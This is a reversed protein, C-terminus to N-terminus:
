PLVKQKLFGEPAVTAKDRWYLFSEKLAAEFQEPNMGTATGGSIQFHNAMLTGPSMPAEEETPLGNVSIIEWDADSSQEDNEALVDHRYLVVDVRKAPSKGGERVVFTEKRPEEGAHRPIYRGVLRDGSELKVIGTYFGQPPLPVLLVGDRYGPKARHFHTRVMELIESWQGDFHTYPSAATQRLVFQSVAISPSPGVPGKADIM